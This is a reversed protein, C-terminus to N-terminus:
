EKKSIVSRNNSDDFARVAFFKADAPVGTVTFSERGGPAKPAPEGTLNVAMWWNCHGGDEHKGFLDLFTVYDVIPKTSCKVQYRVVRGGGADAPATFTVTAKDGVVSVDLDKVAAPPKADKRPHSWEYFTRGSLCVSEDNVNYVNVWRGVGGLNHMKAAQYGRHSGYYWYDYARKKLFKEGTLSYARACIDAHFRSLRGSIKMGEGDKAGEPLNWSFYDKVVGRLPFDAIMRRYGLQGHREQFLVRAAAQGYAIVWDQADEDGTLSYYADMAGSQYVYMWLNPSLIPYWSKGTKPDTLHGDGPDMTVGLRKMEALGKPGVFKELGKFAGFGKMKIKNNGNVLGREEPRPRKLFVSALWDGAEVVYPDTPAIMRIGNVLYCARTFDRSFGNSEGPVKKFARKQTDYQQEVSDICADFADREGTICFWAALGAGYNHCYCQKSRAQTWLDLVSGKDFPEKFEKAWSAIITNRRGTVPDAGRQPRNGLPGSHWWVGGDKWRWGDTRWKQLDMEYNAWAGSVTFFDRSGTRLYMLVLGELTDQETDYHNDAGSVYRRVPINRNPKGPARKPDHKWGWTEYCKLEDAQAGFKGVALSETQFYWAPPAMAHLRGRARRGFEGLAQAGNPAAFDIVYQSSLHSCDFIWRWKDGYPEGVKRKRKPWKKDLHGEFREAIGTLILTRKGTELRRAPDDAFVLDCVAVTGGGVKAAIWGQARNEPGDGTWIVKDGRGAKSHGFIPQYTAFLRLGQHM